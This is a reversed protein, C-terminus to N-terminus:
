NWLYIIFPLIFIALYKKYQFYLDKIRELDSNYILFLIGFAINTVVMNQGSGGQYILLWLMIWKFWPYDNFFDSIMKPPQPLGFSTLGTILATLIILNIDIQSTNLYKQFWKPIRNTPM